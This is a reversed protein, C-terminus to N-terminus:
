KKQKPVTLTSTNSRHSISHQYWYLLCYLAIQAELNWHLVKWTKKHSLRKKEGIHQCTSNCGSTIHCRDGTGSMDSVKSAASLKMTSKIGM